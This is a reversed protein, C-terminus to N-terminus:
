SLISSSELGAVLKIFNGLTLTYLFTIFKFDMNVFSDVGVVFLKNVDISVFIFFQISSQM